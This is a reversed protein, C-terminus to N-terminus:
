YNHHNEVNSKMNKCYNGGLNNLSLISMLGIFSLFVGFRAIENAMVNKKPYKCMRKNLDM